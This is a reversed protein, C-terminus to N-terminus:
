GPVSAKFIVAKGLTKLEYEGGACAFFVAGIQGVDAKSGSQISVEGELVILIEPSTSKCQYACDPRIEIKSLEFDPASTPFVVECNSIAKGSIIDPDVPDFLLHELLEPVDIHKYTLGGRFVNDSNAMLEMNVGELYAHPIGADQFIGKGEPIHVLNFLYISFVGRDFHGGELMNDQFALAAWYDPHDKELQGAEMAPLLRTKMPALIQDVEEQPMEMVAKYLDYTSEAHFWQQLSKLEPVNKLTEKIEIVSKFGHLLWFDTLAVMVEPKHNDDKYNRFPASLPIGQENERRFGAEAAKKTPHSQISLMKKVDLVKFLYPLRNGFKEIVSEGLMEEPHLSILKSLSTIEGEFFIDSTGRQHTGMWLEAFPLEEENVIDLLDPIFDKGGWQYHQIKGNIRLFSQEIRNM